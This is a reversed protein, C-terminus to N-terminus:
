FDYFYEEPNPIGDYGHNTFADIKTILISICPKGRDWWNEVEEVTFHLMPYIPRHSEQVIRFYAVRATDKDHISFADGYCWIGYSKIFIHAGTKVCSM